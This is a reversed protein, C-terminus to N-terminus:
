MSRVMKFKAWGSFNQFMQFAQFPKTERRAKQLVAGLLILEYAGGSLNTDHDADDDDYSRPSLPRLLVLCWIPNYCLARRQHSDTTFRFLGDGRAYDGM